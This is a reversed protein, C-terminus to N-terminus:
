SSQFSEMEDTRRELSVRSKTLVLRDIALAASVHLAPLHKTRRIWDSEGTM